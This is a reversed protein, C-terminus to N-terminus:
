MVVSLFYRKWFLRDYCAPRIQVITHKAIHNHQSITQEFVIDIQLIWNIVFSIHTNCLRCSVFQITHHFQNNTIWYICLHTTSHFPNCASETFAHNLIQYTTILQPIWIPLGYSQITFWYTWFHTYSNHGICHKAAHDLGIQSILNLALRYLSHRYSFDSMTYDVIEIRLRNSINM